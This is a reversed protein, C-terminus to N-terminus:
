RWMYDPLYTDFLKSLMTREERLVRKCSSWMAEVGQTHAGTAPDVFHNVTMHTMGTSANIQNYARWWEDSYIISGPCIHQQIRPLLTTADHHEVEVLFCEGTIREVGGFVWHDEVHRGINYKRKGFKSEDIEVEVDQGGIM